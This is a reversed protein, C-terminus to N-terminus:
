ENNEDTNLKIRSFYTTSPWSPTKFYSLFKKEFINKLIYIYIYINKKKLKLIYFNYCFIKKKSVTDRLVLNAKLHM